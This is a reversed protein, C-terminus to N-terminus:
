NCGDSDITLQTNQEITVDLGLEVNPASLSLNQNITLPGNTNITTGAIVNNDTIPQSLTVVDECPGSPTGTGVLQFNDFAVMGAWPQGPGDNYIFRVQFEENRYAAVDIDVPTTCISQWVNDWPCPSSDEFLIERWTTGDYVEVKFHSDNPFKVFDGFNLNEDFPHFNYDFMLQLDDVKSADYVETTLMVEGSYQNGPGIDDDMIAMCTGDITLLSSSNTLQNYLNFARSADDFKWEYQFLPDGLNFILQNTTESTWGEPIQCNDFDEIANVSCGALPADFSGTGACGIDSMDDAQISIAKDNMGDAILGSITVIQPSTTWARSHAIGDVIVDFSTSSGGGGHRVEITVTYTSPSGPTCDSVVISNIESCSGNLCDAYCDFSPLLIDISNVSAASWTSTNTSSPSMIFQTMDPDHRGGFNHGIEHSTLVRLLANVTTHDELIHYQRDSCVAEISAFGAVGLVPMNATDLGFLDRDTWLQGIDHTQSFGDPAWSIFNDLLDTVYASTTWPDCSPCDSMWHEVIEFRIEDSFPHDYDGAVMNMIATSQAVAGAVGNHDLVYSHDGAIAIEYLRCDGTNKYNREAQKIKHKAVQTAACSVETEVIVSQEHYIIHKRTASKLIQGVPEVYYTESKIKIYGTLLGDTETMRISSQSPNSLLYGTFTRSNTFSIDSKSQTNIVHSPALLENDWLIMEDDEFPGFSITWTTNLVSKANGEDSLVIDGTTYEKFVKSLEKTVNKQGLLVQTLCGLWIIIFIRKM